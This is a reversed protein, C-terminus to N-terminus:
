KNQIEKEYNQFIIKSYLKEQRTKFDKKRFFTVNVLRSYTFQKEFSYIAQLLDKFSGELTLQNSYIIFDNDNAHHVEEINVVSVRKNNNTVFNLIEQQVLEPEISDEGILYNLFLIEKDLAGIDNSAANIYDLRESLSKSENYSNIALNFSRKYATISLIIGILILAFFKKKYSITNFM